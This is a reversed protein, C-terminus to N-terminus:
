PEKKAKPNPIDYYTYLNSGKPVIKDFSSEPPGIHDFKAYFRFGIYALLCGMILFLSVTDGNHNLIRAQYRSIIKVMYQQNVIFYFLYIALVICTVTCLSFRGQIM